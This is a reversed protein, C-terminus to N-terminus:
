RESAAAKPSGSGKACKRCLGFLELRHRTLKFGYKRAMQEQLREIQDNEFEIISGCAECIMHDHHQRRGTPEFVARGDTFHRESAFGLRALLRMTRYVTAMGITPDAKKVRSTLQEVSVHGPTSFFVRAIRTRQATVRLGGRRLKENLAHVAEDPM